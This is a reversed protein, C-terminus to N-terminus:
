RQRELEKQANEWAIYFPLVLPLKQVFSPERVAAICQLILGREAPFFNRETLVKLVKDTPLPLLMAAVAYSYILPRQPALTYTVLKKGLLRKIKKDGSTPNFQRVINHALLYSQIYADKNSKAFKLLPPFFHLVLTTVYFAHVAKEFGESLAKALERHVLQVGVNNIHKAAKYYATLTAHHFKLGLTAALRVGRVLHFPYVDLPAIHRLVRKEFDELFAVHLHSKEGELLPPLPALVANVSFDFPTDGVLYTFKLDIHNDDDLYVRLADESVVLFPQFEEEASLATIVEHIPRQVEVLIDVDTDEKVKHGLLNLLYNRLVGGFVFMRTEDGLLKIIRNRVDGIRKAVKTPLKLDELGVKITKMTRFNLVM